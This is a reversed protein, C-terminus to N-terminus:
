RSTVPSISTKSDSAMRPASAAAAPTISSGPAPKSTTGESQRAAWKFRRSGLALRSTRAKWEAPARERPVAVVM